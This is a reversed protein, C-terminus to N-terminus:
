SVPPPPARIRPVLYPAQALNAVAGVPAALYVVVANALVPTLDPTPVAIQHHGIAQCAPCLLEARLTKHHHTLAETSLALFALATALILSRRLRSGKM